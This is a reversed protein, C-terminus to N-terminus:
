KLSAGGARSLPRVTRPTKRALTQACVPRGETRSPVNLTSQCVPSSATEAEAVRAGANTEEPGVPAGQLTPHGPVPAPRRRRTLCSPANPRQARVTSRAAESFRSGEGTELEYGPTAFLLVQHMKYIERTDTSAIM